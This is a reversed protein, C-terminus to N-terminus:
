KISFHSFLSISISKEL